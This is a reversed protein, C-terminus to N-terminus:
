RDLGDEPFITRAAIASRDKTKFRSWYENYVETIKAKNENFWAQAENPKPQILTTDNLWDSFSDSSTNYDTTGNNRVPTPAFGGTGWNPRVISYYTKGSRVDALMFDAATGYAMYVKKGPSTKHVIKNGNPLAGIFRINGNTVDFIESTIASAVFSDRMFVIQASSGSPKSINQSPSDTMVNASGGCGTLGLLLGVIALNRIMIM